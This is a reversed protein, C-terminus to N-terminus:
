AQTMLLLLLVAGTAACTTNAAKLGIVLLLFGVAGLAGYAGQVTTEVVILTVGGLLELEEKAKM